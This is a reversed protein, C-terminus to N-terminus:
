PRQPQSGPCFHLIGAVTPGSFTVNRTVGGDTHEVHLVRYGASIDFCNAIRYGLAGAFQWTLSDGTPLGGVDAYGTAYFGEALALRASVGVIPDVWSEHQRDTLDGGPLAPTLALDTAFWWARGGAFVDLTGRQDALTRLGATLTTFVVSHDISGSVYDPGEPAVPLHTAVYFVDATAVFADRRVAFRASFAHTLEGLIQDFSETVQVTPLHPRPRLTGDLGAMWLYPAAEAEFRASFEDASLDNAIAAAPASTVAAIIAVVTSHFRTPHRAAPTM